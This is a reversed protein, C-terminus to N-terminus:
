NRNRSSSAPHDDDDGIGVKFIPWRLRIPTITADSYTATASLSKLVDAGSANPSTFTFPNRAPM